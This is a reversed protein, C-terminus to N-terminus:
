VYLVEIWPSARMDVGNIIKRDFLVQQPFRVGGPLHRSVDISLRKLHDGLLYRINYMESESVDAGFVEIHGGNGSSSTRYRVISKPFMFKLLVAKGKYVDENSNDIDFTIRKM